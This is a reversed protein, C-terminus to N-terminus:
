FDLHTFASTCEEPFEQASYTEKKKESELPEQM